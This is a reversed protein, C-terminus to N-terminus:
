LKPLSQESDCKDSLALSTSLSVWREDIQPGPSVHEGAGDWDSNENTPLHNLDITLFQGERQKGPPTFAPSSMSM